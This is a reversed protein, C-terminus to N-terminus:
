VNRVFSRPSPCTNGVIVTKLALPRGWEKTELCRLLNEGTKLLLIDRDAGSSSLLGARAAKTLADIWANTNAAFGDPNSNRQPSFDSYLSPLRARRTHDAYICAPVRGWRVTKYSRRFQDGQATLFDLLESM